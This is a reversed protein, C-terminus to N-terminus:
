SHHKLRRDSNDSRHSGQPHSNAQLMERPVDVVIEFLAQGLESWESVSRFVKPIMFLLPVLREVTVRHSCTVEHDDSRAM